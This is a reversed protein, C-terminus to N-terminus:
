FIKQIKLNGKIENKESFNQIIEIKIKSDRVNRIHIEEVLWNESKKLFKIKKNKQSLEECSESRLTKGHAKIRVKFGKISNKIKSMGLITIKYLGTNCIRVFNIGSKWKLNTKNLNRIEECIEFNSKQFNFKWSFNAILNEECILKIIKMSIKEKTLFDNKDMKTEIRKTLIRLDNKLKEKDEM